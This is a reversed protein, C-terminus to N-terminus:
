DLSNIGKQELCRKVNEKASTIRKKVMSISKGIVESIERYVKGILYYLVLVQKEEKNRLAEICDHVAQYVSVEIASEEINQNEDQLINQLYLEQEPNNRVIKQELSLFNIRKKHRLLDICHNRAIRFLWTHFSAKKPNFRHAKEIARLFVDHVLDEPNKIYM